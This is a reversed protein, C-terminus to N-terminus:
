NSNLGSLALPEWGLPSPRVLPSASFTEGVGVLEVVVELNLLDTARGRVDEDEAEVIGDVTVQGLQALGPVGLHAQLSLQSGHLGGAM